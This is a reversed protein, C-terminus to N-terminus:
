ITVTGFNGVGQLRYVLMKATFRSVSVLLNGVYKLLFNATPDDFVLPSLRVSLSNSVSSYVRRERRSGACIKVEDEHGEGGAQGQGQPSTHGQVEGKYSSVTSTTKYIFICTIVRTYSTIKFTEACSSSIFMFQVSHRLFFM